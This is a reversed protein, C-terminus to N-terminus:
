SVFDFNDENAIFNANRNTLVVLENGDLSIIAGDSSDRFNLDAFSAGVGQIVLLDDGVVFDTITNASEPIVGDIIYQDDGRNGTIVNGGGSGLFFRDDGDVGFVRDGSGLLFTDNGDGGFSRNAGTDFRFDIVDDGDLGFFVENSATALINNDGDNAFVQTFEPLDSTTPDVFVFNNANGIFNANRNTLVVLDEGNLAVIAGDASDRFNLDSFSAGLDQIVLLDDGTVFDTITNASEPIVGNAIIYQDDGRNGTIM